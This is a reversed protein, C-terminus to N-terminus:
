TPSNTKKKKINLAEENGGDGPNRSDWEDQKKIQEDDHLGKNQNARWVAYEGKSLEHDYLPNNSDVLASIVLDRNGTTMVAELEEVSIKNDPTSGDGGDVDDM